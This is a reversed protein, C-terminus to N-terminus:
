VTDESSVRVAGPVRVSGGTDVDNVSGALPM